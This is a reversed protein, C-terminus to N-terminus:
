PYIINWKKTVEKQLLDDILEMAIKSTIVCALALAIITLEKEKRNKLFKKVIEKETTM